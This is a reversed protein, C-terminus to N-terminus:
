QKMKTITGTEEKEEARFRVVEQVIGSLTRPDQFSFKEPVSASTCSLTSM